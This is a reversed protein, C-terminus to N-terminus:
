VEIIKGWFKKMEDMLETENRPASNDFVFDVKEKKEDISWQADLFQNRETESMHPNRIKLREIQQPRPAWSLVSYDFLRMMDKEFLLPIEYILFDITSFDSEKKSFALPMRQYLFNEIMEKNKLDAFFLTRLKAFDLDDGHFAMPFEKKLWGTTEKWSYIDKILDDASIVPYDLERAAQALKSKGSAIGGTLAIIPYSKQHLRESAKLRAKM